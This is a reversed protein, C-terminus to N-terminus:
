WAEGEVWTAIICEDYYFMKLYVFLRNNILVVIKESLGEGEVM